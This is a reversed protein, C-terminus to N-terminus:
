GHACRSSVISPLIIQVPATSTVANHVACPASTRRITVPSSALLLATTSNSLLKARSAPGVGFETTLTHDVLEEGGPKEKLSSMPLLGIGSEGGSLPVTIRMTSNRGSSGAASPLISGLRM